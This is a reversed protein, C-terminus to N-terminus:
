DYFSYRQGPCFFQKTSLSIRVLRSRVLRVIGDTDRDFVVEYAAGCTHSDQSTKVLKGNSFVPAMDHTFLRDRSAFCRTAYDVIIEVCFHLTSSHIVCYADVTEEVENSITGQGSRIGRHKCANINRIIKEDSKM